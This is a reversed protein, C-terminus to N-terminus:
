KFTFATGSDWIEQMWFNVIRVNLEDALSLNEEKNIITNKMIPYDSSFEEILDLLTQANM